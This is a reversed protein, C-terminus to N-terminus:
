LCQGKTVLDLGRLVVVLGVFVVLGGRELAALAQHGIGPAAAVAPCKM